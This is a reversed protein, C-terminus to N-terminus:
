SDVTKDRELWRAVFVWINLSSCQRDSNKQSFLKLAHTNLVYNGLQWLCMM